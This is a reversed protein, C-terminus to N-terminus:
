RAPRPAESAAQKKLEEVMRAREEPSANKMKSVFDSPLGSPGSGAASPGAQKTYGVPIEFASAPVAKKEVKVLEMTMMQEGTGYVSKVPFGDVGAEKLAKGLADEAGAGRPGGMGAFMSSDGLEKTIWMDHSEGRSSTVTVHDCGYGAVKDKGVKKVTYTPQPGAKAAERAAKTDMEMFTKQGEDLMLATDPKSRNHIITRDMPMPANLVKMESRAGLPSVSVTMTGQMRAGSMKMEIVGEFPAAAAVVLPTVVSVLVLLRKM